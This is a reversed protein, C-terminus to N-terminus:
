PPRNGGGNAGGGDSTQRTVIDDASETTDSLSLAQGKESLNVIIGSNSGDSDVNIDEENKKSSLTAEAKKQVNFISPDSSTKNVSVDLIFM